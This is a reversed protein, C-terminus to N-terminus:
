PRRPLGTTACLSELAPQDIVANIHLIPNLLDLAKLVREASAPDQDQIQRVLADDVLTRAKWAALDCADFARINEKSRPIANYGDHRARDILHGQGADGDEFVCV